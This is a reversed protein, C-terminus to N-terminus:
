YIIALFAMAAGGAMGGLVGASVPYLELPLKARVLEPARPVREVERRTTVVEEVAAVPIAVREHAEHPLTERFWGVMGAVALVAGVVSLSLSTALGGFILAVGFALVVPWATPAPLEVSEEGSGTANTHEDM